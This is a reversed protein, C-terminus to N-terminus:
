GAAGSAPASKHRSGNEVVAICDAEVLLDPRALTAGITTRAPRHDEIWKIYCHNMAEFDREVDRLYVACRVISRKSSGAQELVRDINEFTQRCQDDLRDSVAKATGPTFGVMGSVYILGDVITASSLPPSDRPAIKQIAAQNMTLSEHHCTARLRPDVNLPTRDATPM